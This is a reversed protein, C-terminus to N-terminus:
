NEKVKKVSDETLGNIEMAVKQVRLLAKMSKLKLVDADEDKFLRAGNEDVACRVVIRAAGSNDGKISQSFKVAEEGNLARIRVTGGWEPVDVEVTEVDQVALVEAASLFKKVEGM